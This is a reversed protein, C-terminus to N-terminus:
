PPPLEQTKSEGKVIIVDWPEGDISVAYRGNELKFTMTAKAPQPPEIVANGRSLDLARGVLAPPVKVTVTVKKVPVTTILFPPQGEPPEDFVPQQSEGLPDNPIQKFRDQLFAKLSRDTVQGNVHAGGQLGELLKVTFAGRAKAGNQKEFAFQDPLAAFAFLTRPKGNKATLMLPFDVLGQAPVSTRCCDMFLLVEEFCDAEGFFQAFRRGAIHSYFAKSADSTLLAPENGKPGGSVQIGHGALYIYLRRGLRPANNIGQQGRQVQKVIEVFRATAGSLDPSPPTPGVIHKPKVKAKKVLWDKFAAADADAGAIKGISKLKPYTQVGIVVAWDDDSEAM